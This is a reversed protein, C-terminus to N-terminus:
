LREENAVWASEVVRTRAARGAQVSDVLASAIDIVDGHPMGDFTCRASSASGGRAPRPRAQRLPLDLGRSWRPFGIVVRTASEGSRECSLAISPTIM